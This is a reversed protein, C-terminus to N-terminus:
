VCVCVCLKYEETTTVAAQHQGFHGFGPVQGLQGLGRLLPEQVLDLLLQGLKGIGDCLGVSGPLGLYVSVLPDIGENEWDPKRKREHNGHRVSM